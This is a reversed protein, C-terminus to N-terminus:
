RNTPKDFSGPDPLPSRDNREARTSATRPPVVVNMKATQWAWLHQDQPEHLRSTGDVGLLRYLLHELMHNLRGAWWQTRSVGSRRVGASVRHRQRDPGGARLCGGFSQVHGLISRNAFRSHRRMMASVERTSM